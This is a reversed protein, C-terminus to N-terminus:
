LYIFVGLIVLSFVLMAFYVKYSMPYTQGKDSQIAIFLAGNIAIFIPIILFRLYSCHSVTISVQKYETERSVNGNPDTM